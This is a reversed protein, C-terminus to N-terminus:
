LSMIFCICFLFNVFGIFEEFVLGFCFEGYILIDVFILIVIFVVFLDVLVLNMVFWNFEKCNLEKICLIVFLVMLNGFVVLINVVLFGFLFVIIEVLFWGKIIIGLYNFLM